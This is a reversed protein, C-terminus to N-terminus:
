DKKPEDALKQVVPALRSLMISPSPTSDILSIFKERRGRLLDRIKVQQTDDLKLEHNLSDFRMSLSVEGLVSLLPRQQLRFIQDDSLPATDAALAAIGKARRDAFRKQQAAFKERQDATLLPTLEHVFEADIQDLRGRYSDIQSRYREIEKILKARDVAPQDGAKATTAPRASTKATGTPPATRAFESGITAPAPPVTADGETWMRAVFGAGFVLASFLVILLRQKM